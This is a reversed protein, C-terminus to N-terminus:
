WRCIHNTPIQMNTSAPTKYSSYVSVASREALSDKAFMVSYCNNKCWTSIKKMTISGLVAETAREGWERAVKAKLEEIM